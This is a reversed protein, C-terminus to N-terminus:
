TPGGCYGVIDAHKDPLLDAARRRIDAVPLNIAGPIHRAAFSEPSLVDVLVVRGSRLADILEARSVTAADVEPM